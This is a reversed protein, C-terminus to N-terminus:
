NIIEKLLDNINVSAVGIYKDAAGYYIYLIDGQLISGTPFVVNNVNGSKEWDLEPSFLPNKLRGIEKTPNEIDLLAVGAHYKYGEHTDEVGHYILLWGHATEIPPCGAGIYSAEFPMKSKLITYENIHFLYERWFSDTLENMENCYVIQIDPFIRHLFALKGNIKRPFFVVDKDWIFLKQTVEPGMRHNFLQVFRLYKQKAVDTSGISLEFEKYTLQPAIIKGSSFSKLDKSLILSGLANKGDYATYTIYFTDDIKVIRPDEIGQSEHKEHPILFPYENRVAIHTPTDLQCYGITSYNATSTARYLLHIIGNEAICAPNFVGRNEFKHETPSLLLIEKKVHLM